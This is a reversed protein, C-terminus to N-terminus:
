INAVQEEFWTWLERGLEPDNSRPEGVRAWPILYQPTYCSGRPCCAFPIISVEGNFNATDPSTGAWLQTLAGQSPPYLLMRMIFKSFSDLSGTLLEM